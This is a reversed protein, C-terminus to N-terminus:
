VINVLINKSRILQSVERVWCTKSLAMKLKEKEVGETLKQFLKWVKFVDNKHESDGKPMELHNLLSHLKYSKVENRKFLVSSLFLTDIFKWKPKPLGLRKLESFIHHGVIYVPQSGILEFVWKEFELWTEKFDQIDRVFCKSSYPFYASFKVTGFDIFVLNPLPLSSPDIKKNSVSFNDVHFADAVKEFNPHRVFGCSSYSNIAKLDEFTPSGDDFPQLKLRKSGTEYFGRKLIADFYNSIRSLSVSNARVTRDRLKITLDHTTELNLGAIIDANVVCERPRKRKEFEYIEESYVWKKPEFPLDVSVIM